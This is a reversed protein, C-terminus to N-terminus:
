SILPAAPSTVAGATASSSSSSSSSLFYEAQQMLHQTHEHWAQRSHRELVLVHHHDLIATFSNHSHTDNYLSRKVRSDCRSSRTIIFSRVHTQLKHDLITCSTCIIRIWILVADRKETSHMRIGNYLIWTITLFSLNKYDTPIQEM